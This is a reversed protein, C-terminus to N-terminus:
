RKKKKTEVKKKGISSIEAEVINKPEEPEPKEEKLPTLEHKLGVREELEIVKNEEIAHWATKGEPDCWPIMVGKGTDNIFKIKESM